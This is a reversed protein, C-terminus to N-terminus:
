KDTEMNIIKVLAALDPVELDPFEAPDTREPESYRNVWVNNWGLKNTPVIDHYISQAVHLVKDSSIGFLELAKTFNNLSPKYSGLQKATIIFDFKVGLCRKTIDFLEDDINSIIALRYKKQLEVLSDHTDPFSTWDGFRDVLCSRDQPLLDLSLRGGIEDMIGTLVDHYPIYDVGVFKRDAEIFLDFLMNKSLDLHYDRILPQLIDMISKKWDILTGYCDFSLIEFQKFNM